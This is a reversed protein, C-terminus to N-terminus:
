EDRPARCFWLSIEGCDPPLPRPPDPDGDSIIKVADFVVTVNRNQTTFSGTTQLQGASGDPIGLIYYYTTGPELPAINFMNSDFTYFTNAVRGVKRSFPGTRQAAFANGEGASRGDQFVWHGDRQHPSSTGIEVAPVLGPTSYFTITFASARFSVKIDELYAIMDTTNGVSSREIAKTEATIPLDRRRREVQANAAVQVLLVFVIAWLSPKVSERYTSSMNM